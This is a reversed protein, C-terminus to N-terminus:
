SNLNDISLQLAELIKEFDTPKAIYSKIGLQEAKKLYDSETYASLLIIEQKPNIKLIKEALLLGDMNPMQIDTIIIDFPHKLYKELADNGDVAVEVHSFIKTLFSHMQERLEIQDDVFLVSASNTKEKISSLQTKLNSM